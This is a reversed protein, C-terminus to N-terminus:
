TPLPDVTDSWTCGTVLYVTLAFKLGTWTNLIKEKVEANQLVTEEGFGASKKDSKHDTKLIWCIFHSEKFSAVYEHITGWQSTENLFCM